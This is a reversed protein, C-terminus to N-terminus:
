LSFFKLKSEKLWEHSLIQRFSFRKSPSSSLLGKLLTRSKQPLATDNMMNLDFRDPFSQTLLCYLIIGLSFIDAAFPNISKKGKLIEPSAYNETGQWLFGTGLSMQHQSGPMVLNVYNKKKGNCGSKDRIWCSGFDCLFINQKKDLLINELKLDLHAVGADHLDKVALCIKKFIKKVTSDTLHVKDSSIFEFLDMEYKKMVVFSVDENRQSELVACIRKTKKKLHKLAEIESNISQSNEDSNQYIKIAVPKNSKQVDFGSLVNGQTGSALPSNIIYRATLHVDTTNPM